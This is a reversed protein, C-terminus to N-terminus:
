NLSCLYLPSSVPAIMASDYRLDGSNDYTASHPELNNKAPAQRRFVIIQHSSTHQVLHEHAIMTTTELIKQPLVPKQSVPKWSVEFFSWFHGFIKLFDYTGPFDEM